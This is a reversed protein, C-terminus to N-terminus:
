FLFCWLQVHFRFLINKSSSCPSTPLQITFKQIRQNSQDTVYVNGYKDFKLDRPGNLQYPANGTTGTCGMICVGGATYNTTWKSVRNTGAEAVYMYRIVSYQFYIISKM